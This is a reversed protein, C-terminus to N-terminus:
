QIPAPGCGARKPGKLERDITHQRSKAIKTEFTEPDVRLGIRGFWQALTQPDVVSSADAVEVAHRLEHGILSAM